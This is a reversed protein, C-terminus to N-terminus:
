LSLNWADLLGSNAFQEWDNEGVVPNCPTPAVFPATGLAPLTADPATFDLAAMLDGVDPSNDRSTPSIRGLGFASEIFKLVSTHDYVQSSV